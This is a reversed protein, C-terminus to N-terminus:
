YSDKYRSAYESPTMLAERKFVRSFQYIGSYGVEEAIEGVSKEPLKLLEKAKEMRLKRLYAMPSKGTEKLFAKRFYVTSINLREAVRDNSLCPDAYEGHMISIAMRIYKGYESSASERDLSSMIDYLAALCAHHSHTGNENYYMRRLNEFKEEYVSINSVPFVLFESRDFDCEFNIQPCVDDSLPEYTYAGCPLYLVNTGDSVYEEGNMRYAVSGNKAFVLGSFHRNVKGGKGKEVNIDLISHLKSVVSKNWEM